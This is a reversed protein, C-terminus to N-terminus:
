GKQVVNVGSLAVPPSKLGGGIWEGEKGIELNGDLLEYVNGAIMTNKVKGKIEGNEIRYAVSVNNSFEGSLTNGQGLGLVQDVLLGTDVDSIMRGITKEGPGVLLSTPGTSPPSRFDGGSILGGKLGNGTPERDAMGATQLDYLFNEVTGEKILPIRGVPLGEDDFSRRAPSGEISGHDILTLEESFVERGLKEGLPSTGQYVNKGNFGALLPVLLVLTGRPTFLVPYTGSEIKTERQAWKLKQIARDVLSDPEFDELKRASETERFSFIDGEKVDKVTLSASVSTRQEEQALGNSNQVRVEDKSRTLNLNLELEDDFEEIRKIVRKGIEVLDAPSLESVAPDSTPLEDAKGSDPFEFGASEGLKATAKAREILTDQSELDTTSSFGLRGNHIVRLAKGITEVAKVSELEGSEFKVPVSHGRIGFVEASDVEKSAKKLLDM